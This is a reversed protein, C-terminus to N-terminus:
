PALTGIKFSALENMPRAQGTHQGNFATSGDNGCLSLIRDPGGPHKGIWTTVDYVSGNISTWCSAATSHEAVQAATYSGSV